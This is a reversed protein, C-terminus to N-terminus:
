RGSPRADPAGVLDSSRARRAAVAEEVRTGVFFDPNQATYLEVPHEFTFARFDAETFLGDDVLEYAEAVVGAIDPVDWHGIDSGFVAQLTAGFPNLERRFALANMPDDAECGFFFPRVFLEVFDDVTEIECAAWDDLEVPRHQPRELYERVRGLDDRYLDPGYRRVLEEFADLDLNAPDLRQIAQGNRKEWHSVLDSLLSTAWGAGGELFVFRLDPFRRTVGGMFLSKCLSENAAAFAGIHNYAYRSYSRRSGWSQESSHMGVAVGLDVCRQWFPDYDHDSDIGLTDLRQAFRAAEPHERAVKPVPRRVHGAVVAKHGLEVVAHELVDIAEDPHHMPIVAVPCLRDGYPAYLERYLQNYARCAVRRVDPDAIAPLTLGLSPYLISLDIGLEDMRDHLLGPLYTAARDRVATPMSWWAPHPFCEDRRQDESAPLWQDVWMEDITLLTGAVRDVLEPGGEDRAHDLVRDRALTTLEQLHGDVDIVPHDLGARVEASSREHDAGTV